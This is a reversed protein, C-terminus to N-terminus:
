RTLETCSALLLHEGVHGYDFVHQICHPERRTTGYTPVSDIPLSGSTRAADAASAVGFPTCYFQMRSVAMNCLRRLSTPATCMGFVSRSLMNLDVAFANTSLGGV